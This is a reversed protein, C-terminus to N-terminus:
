TGRDPDFPAHAQPVRACILRRRATNVPHADPVYQVQVKRGGVHVATALLANKLSVTFYQCISNPEVASAM